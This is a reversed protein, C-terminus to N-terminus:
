IFHNKNLFDKELSYVLTCCYLDFVNDLNRNENSFHKKVSYSDTLLKVRQQRKEGKRKRRRKKKSRGLTNTTNCWYNDPSGFVSFENSEYLGRLYYFSRRSVTIPFSGYM